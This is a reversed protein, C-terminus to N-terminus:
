QLMREHILPTFNWLWVRKLTQHGISKDSQSGSVKMSTVTMERYGFFYCAWRLPQSRKSIAEFKVEKM